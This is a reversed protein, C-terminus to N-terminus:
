RIILHPSFNSAGLLIVNVGKIQLACEYICMCAEKPTELVHGHGFLLRVWNSM